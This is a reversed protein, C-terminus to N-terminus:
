ELFGYGWARPSLLKSSNIPLKGASQTAVIGIILLVSVFVVSVVMSMYFIPSKKKFPRVVTSRVWGVAFGVYIAIWLQSLPMVILGSVLGDILVALAIALWCTLIAHGRMDTSQLLCGTALLAKVGRYLAYVLCILALGGWEAAIQLFWNHPHAAIGLSACNKAFSLPGQGFWPKQFFMETACLWLSERSSGLNKVSREVVVGLFGFAQMGAFYPILIYLLTYMLLGAFAGLFMVRLWPWAISRFKLWVILMAFIVGIFTGRGSSVYLLMWWSILAAWSLWRWFIDRNQMSFVVQLGLLPLTVTQGHNFFRYNDFGPLLYDSEIGLGSFLAVMYIALAKFAYLLSGILIFRVARELRFRYDACVECSIILALVCLLFFVSFEFAARAFHESLLVSCFGFVFFVIIAQSFDFNFRNNNAVVWFIFWFGTILLWFLEFWRQTDHYGENLLLDLSLLPLVVVMGITFFLIWTFDPQRAKIFERV